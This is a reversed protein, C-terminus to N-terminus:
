AQNDQKEKKKKAAAAAKAEAKALAQDFITNYKFTGAFEPAILKMYATQAAMEASSRAADAGQKLGAAAMQQKAERAKINYDTVNALVGKNAAEIAKNRVKADLANAADVNQKEAYLKSMAENRSMAAQQMNSMYSGGGLGTDRAAKSLQAYSRQVEKKQPDINYEWPSFDAKQYFSRPDLKDVKGFLGLGLNYAAPLLQGVGQALTQNMTLDQNKYKLTEDVEKLDSLVKAKEEETMNAFDVNSDPLAMRTALSGKNYPNDLSAASDLADYDVKYPVINGLSDRELSFGGGRLFSHTAGSQQLNTLHNIMDDETPSDLYGGMEKQTTNSEQDLGLFQRPSQGAARMAAKQEATMNKLLDVNENRQEVQQAKAALRAPDNAMQELPQSYQISGTTLGEIKRPVMQGTTPDYDKVVQGTNADTYYNQKLANPDPAPPYMTSLSEATPPTYKRLDYPEYIYKDPQQSAVFYPKNNKLVQYEELYDPRLETAPLGEIMKIRAAREATTYPRYDGGTGTPSGADSGGSGYMPAGTKPDKPNNKYGELSSTYQSAYDSGLTPNYSAIAPASTKPRTVTVPALATPNASTGPGGPEGPDVMFGGEAYLNTLPQGMPGANHAFGGARFGQYPNNQMGANVMNNPMTPMNGSNWSYADGTGTMQNGANDMVPVGGGSTPTAPATPTKAFAGMM